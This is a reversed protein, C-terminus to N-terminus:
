RGQERGKEKNMKDKTHMERDRKEGVTAAYETNADLGQSPSRTPCRSDNKKISKIYM